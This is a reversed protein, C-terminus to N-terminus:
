MHDSTPTGSVYLPVQVWFCSGEGIKSEVGITGGMSEILDKCITLGLGTGETTLHDSSVREFANFVKSQQEPTLGNGTDSISLYLMNEHIISCNIIIKGDDNNYKVANSLINILVQKFRQQDVTIKIDTLSCINNDIVISRKIAMTKILTLCDNLLDNLNHDEISLHLNGSEIAALDLIENILSLLHMGASIIEQINDKTKIDTASLELLQSFGIIANLPTRLEHSMSSLFESKATNAREAEDRAAKMSVTREEVLEELHERHEYLEQEAKKRETIDRSLVIFSPYNTADSKKKAVSLEFWSNGNALTLLMVHGHSAGFKDAEELAKTVETFADNPLIEKITKGLLLERTDVLLADNNSMVQIYRGDKDLEFLLDPLANLTAAMDNALKNVPDGFHHSIKRIVFISITLLLLVMATLIVIGRKIEQERKLTSLSVQVVGQLSHNFGGYYPLTIEIVPEGDYITRRTQSAMKKSLVSEAADKSAGELSTNNKEKINHALVQGQLDTILLSRIDSFEKKTDELLLQAHYRGSFSVRSISTALVQTFLTSLTKEERDMIGKLYIGSVLLVTMMLFFILIGFSIALRQDVKSLLAVEENLLPIPSNM